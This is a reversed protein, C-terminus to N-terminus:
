ISSQDLPLELFAQVLVDTAEKRSLGRSQLYFQLHQDLRGTTSAHSATVDNTDIQMVPEAHNRIGDGIVLTKDELRSDSGHATKQVVVKGIYRSEGGDDLVVKIRTLSTTRPAIHVVSTALDFVQGKGVRCACNIKCEIDPVELKITLSKQSRETLDNVFDRIIVYETGETPSLITQSINSYLLEIRKM